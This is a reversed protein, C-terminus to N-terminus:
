RSTCYRDFMDIIQEMLISDPEFCQKKDLYENMFEEKVEDCYKKGNDEVFAKYDENLQERYAWAADSYFLYDHGKDEYLVFEFRDSNGFEEYFKDYGYRVPVTTDDKSHVIMIGADTRSLGDIASVDAFDKGFKIREYFAMYPTLIKAAKGAMQEGVYELLDESENFGAVIVAARIDPHMYLLNGASYGGWSHGFLAFPLNQYEEISQAHHLANDLSIIGQPLGEVSDGESNDNGRADYGFVYYGNSTFYDVFPMYSNHGGGGLGHAIIVVGKIEQNEKSYKYGALTVDESQFNSREMKLGEYDEVSFQMWSVTEYRTGFVSEYVIVSFVPLIVLPISVLFSVISILVIKKKTNRIM